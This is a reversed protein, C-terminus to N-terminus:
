SFSLFVSRKLAREHTLAGKLGPAKIFALQCTEDHLTFLFLVSSSRSMYLPVYLGPSGFDAESFGHQSILIVDLASM